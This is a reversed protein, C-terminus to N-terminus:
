VNLVVSGAGVYSGKDLKTDPIITANTGVTVYDNVKIRGALAAGGMIHVGKGLNCEHDITASSNVISFNGIKSHCNIVANPM